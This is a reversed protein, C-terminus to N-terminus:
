GFVQRFGSNMGIRFLEVEAKHCYKESLASASSGKGKKVSFDGLKVDQADTGADDKASYVDCLTAYLLYNQYKVPINSATVSVGSFKNIDDLHREAISPLAGSTNDPITDVYDWVAEAVSGTNWIAM